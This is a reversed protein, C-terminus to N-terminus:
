ILGRRHLITHTRVWISNQRIELVSCVQIWRYEVALLILRIKRPWCWAMSYIIPEWISQRSAVVISHLPIAMIASSETTPSESVVSNLLMTAVSHQIRELRLTAASESPQRMSKRWVQAKFRWIKSRWCLSVVVPMCKRTAMPKLIFPQHRCIIVCITQREMCNWITATISSQQETTITIFITWLRLQVVSSLM